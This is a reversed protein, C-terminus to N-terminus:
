GASAAGVRGALADCIEAPGASVRSLVRVGAPRVQREITVDPRRLVVVVREAGIDVLDAVFVPDCREARGAAIVIAQAATSRAM